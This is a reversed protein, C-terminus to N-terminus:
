RRNSSKAHSCIESDRQVKYTIIAISRSVAVHGATTSQRRMDSMREKQDKQKMSDNGDSDDDRKM